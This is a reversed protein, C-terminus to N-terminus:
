TLKENKIPKRMNKYLDKAAEKNGENGDTIDEM